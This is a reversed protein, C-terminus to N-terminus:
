PLSETAIVSSVDRNFFEEVTKCGVKWPNSNPDVEDVSLVCLEPTPFIQRLAVRLGANNLDSKVYRYLSGDTWAYQHKSCINAESLSQEVKSCAKDLARAAATEDSCIVETPGDYGFAVSYFPM